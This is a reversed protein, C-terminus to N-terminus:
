PEIFVRILTPSNLPFHVMVVPYETGIIYINYLDNIYKHTHTHTHTFTHRQSPTYEKHPHTYVCIYVCVYEKGRTRLPIELNCSQEGVYCKNLVQMRWCVDAYTLTRLRLIARNNAWM